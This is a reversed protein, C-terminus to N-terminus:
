WTGLAVGIVFGSIAGALVFKWDLKIPSWSDDDEEDASPPLPLAESDRCKKPLPDGCLGPNGEFSSPDFTRLQNGQPIPGTLNNHAVSFSQLFNLQAHQPPIEGSLMNRSLDLSELQSLNGVSLPIRGTLM